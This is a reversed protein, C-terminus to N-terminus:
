AFYAHVFVAVALLIIANINVVNKWFPKESTDSFKKRLAEEEEKTLKPGKNQLGCFVSCARRLCGSAQESEDEEPASDDELPKEEADLDIREETNNWLSWCLRYLHVDPIPKTLFSVGLIVVISVFFLIIAFYTYHVGCIIKPCNGPAVCSGTGYIFEPIMCALGLVLGVMLGWFAG